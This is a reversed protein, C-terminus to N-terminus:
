CCENTPANQEGFYSESAESNDLEADYEMHDVDM